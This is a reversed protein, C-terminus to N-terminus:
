TLVRQAQKREDQQPSAKYIDCHTSHIVVRLSTGGRPPSELSMEDACRQINSLGMGAGFGLERVRETAKSFGPQIAQEIDPIGPGTDVAQFIIKEPWIEVSIEGGTHTHIIINM